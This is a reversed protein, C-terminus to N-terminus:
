DAGLAFCNLDLQVGIHDSPWCIPEPAAGCSEAFPNPEDAFLGSAFGDGDGDAASDIVPRCGFGNEPPVLFIYDIRETERAGPRELDSLNQDERGSTCGVGSSPECEPNGAAAYTDPWGSGAFREYVFSQPVENFDGTILAPGGTDHRARVFDAVQVAQCDRFTVAGAAVCEAPCNRCPLPGADSGSALHTSFVDVAGLPHDIRAFLVYRFKNVLVKRDVELAPYRSLVLTEDLRFPSFSSVVEYRFPCRREVEALVLDLVRTNIEQLTVIDPCGEAEIWDFLLDVRDALRCMATEEPCFAGHLVNLDAVTVDPTRTGAGDGCGGLAIGIGFALFCFGRRM